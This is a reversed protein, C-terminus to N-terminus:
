PPHGHRQLCWSIGQPRRSLVSEPSGNAFITDHMHVKQKHVKGNPNYMCKGDQSVVPVEVGWNKGNNPTNQPMKLASSTPMNSTLPQRTM